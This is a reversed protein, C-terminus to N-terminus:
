QKEQQTKKVESAEGVQYLTNDKLTIGAYSLIKMVLSTQESPHLEFHASSNPYYIANEDIVNYSWNVPAPSKIYTVISGSYAGIPYVTFENGNKIFVPTTLSPAIISNNINLLEDKNVEQVKYEKSTGVHINGLRYMSFPFVGLGSSLSLAINAEQRFISIKEKLLDLMDSYETSNGPIRSFQNEDYFYQEFIEMQAQNAFLNFEQPTVYGRQEKNAIALVTQYVTDINVM